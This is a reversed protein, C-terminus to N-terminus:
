LRGTLRRVTLAIRTALAKSSTPSSALQSSSAANAELDVVRSEVSSALAIDSLEHMTMLAEVMERGVYPIM